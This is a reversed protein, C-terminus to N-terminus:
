KTLASASAGPRDAASLNMAMRAPPTAALLAAVGIVGAILIVEVRVNRILLRRSSARDLTPLLVFRNYGGIALLVAFAELKITLVRGYSSYLLYGLNHGLAEWAVYSGSVILLVVSWTALRSLAVAVPIRDDPNTRRAGIWYGFLAGIWTAAAIAHVFRLAVAMAGFDIAHSKLSGCLMIVASFIGLAVPRMRDRIPLWAALALAGAAPLRVTWTHGAWTQALVEGLLPLASSWTVGAMDAVEGVFMLPCFVMVVTALGRWWGRLSRALADGPKSRDAARTRLAICLMASGFILSQALIAPWAMIASSWQPAMDMVSMTM